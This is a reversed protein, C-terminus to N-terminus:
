LGFAFMDGKEKDIKIGFKYTPDVCRNTCMHWVVSYNIEFSLDTEIIKTTILEAYLHHYTSVVGFHILIACLDEAEVEKLLDKSMHGIKEEKKRLYIADLYNLSDFYEPNVYFFYSRNNHFNATDIRFLDLKKTKNSLKPKIAKLDFEMKALKATDPRAGEKFLFGYWKEKKLMMGISDSKQWNILTANYEHDVRMYTPDDSNIKQSFLSVTFLFFINILIYKM